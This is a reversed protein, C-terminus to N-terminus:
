GSIVCGKFGGSVLIGLIFMVVPLTVFLALALYKTFTNVTLFNKKFWNRM